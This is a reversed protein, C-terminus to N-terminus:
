SAAYDGLMATKHKEVKARRPPSADIQKRLQDFGKRSTTTKAPTM